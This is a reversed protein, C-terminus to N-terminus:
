QPKVAAITLKKKEEDITYLIDLKDHRVWYYDHLSAELRSGCYPDYALKDVIFELVSLSLEEPIDRSMHYVAPETFEYDYAERAHRGSATV